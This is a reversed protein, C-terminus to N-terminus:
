GWASLKSVGLYNGEAGGGGWNRWCRREGEGGTMTEKQSAWLESGEKSLSFLMQLTAERGELGGLPFSSTGSPCSFVPTVPSPSRPERPTGPLLSTASAYLM